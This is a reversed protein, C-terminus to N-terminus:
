ATVPRALQAVALRPPFAGTAAEATEGTGDDPGPPPAYVGDLLYHMELVKRLADLEPHALVSRFDRIMRTILEALEDQPMSRFRACSEFM